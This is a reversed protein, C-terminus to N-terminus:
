NRAKLLSYVGGALLLLGVGIFFSNLPEGTENSHIIELTIAAVATIVLMFSTLNASSKKPDKESKM